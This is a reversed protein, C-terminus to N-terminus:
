FGSKEMNTQLKKSVKQADKKLYIMLTKLNKHGTIQMIEYPDLWKEEFAMTAFTRRGCHSTIKEWKKHQEIRIQGKIKRETEIESDIGIKKCVQKLKENYTADAMKPPTGNNNKIISTVTLSMPIIIPKSTKTMKIKIRNEKLDLHTKNLKFFDSIRLGTLCSIVFWDRVISEKPNLHKCNVIKQLEDKSLIIPEKEESPKKYGDPLEKDTYGLQKAHNIVNILFKIVCGQYNICHGCEMNLYGIFDHYFSSSMVNAISLTRKRNKSYDDLKKIASNYTKLTNHQVGRKEKNPLFTNKIFDFVSISDNIQDDSFFNLFDSKELKGHLIQQAIANQANQEIENLKQNITNANHSRIKVRKKGNDWSDRKIRIGTSHNIQKGRLSFKFRITVQDSDGKKFYFTINRM